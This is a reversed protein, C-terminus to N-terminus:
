KRYAWLENEGFYVLLYAGESAVNEFLNLTAEQEEPWPYVYFLDVESLSWAEDEYCHDTMSAKAPTMLEMGGQTQLFDFGEPLFSCELFQASLRFEKALERAQQILEPQIEIGTADFGLSSALCTAAGLGSGWECFRDGLLPHESRLEALAKYVLEYEAPLFRPIKRNSGTDFFHDCSREASALLDRAKQPVKSDLRLDIEDLGM